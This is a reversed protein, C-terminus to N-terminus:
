GAGHFLERRRMTAAPKRSSSASFSCGQVRRLSLRDVPRRFAAGGPDPDPGFSRDRHKRLVFRNALDKCPSRKDPDDGPETPGRRRYPM